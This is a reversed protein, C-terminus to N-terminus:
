KRNTFKPRAVFLVRLTRYFLFVFTLNLDTPQQIFDNTEIHSRSHSRSLRVNSKSLTNKPHKFEAPLTSAWHNSKHAVPFRILFLCIEIRREEKQMTETKQINKTQKNKEM